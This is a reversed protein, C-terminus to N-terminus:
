NQNENGGTTKVYEPASNRKEKQNGGGVTRTNEEEM